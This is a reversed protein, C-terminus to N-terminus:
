NRILMSKNIYQSSLGCLFPIFVLLLRGRNQPVSDYRSYGIPRCVSSIATTIETEFVFITTQCFGPPFTVINYSLCQQRSNGLIAVLIYKWQGIGTGTFCSLASLVQGHEPIPCSRHKSRRFETQLTNWLTLLQNRFGSLRFGVCSGFIQETKSYASDGFYAM